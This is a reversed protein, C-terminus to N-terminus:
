LLGKWIYNEHFVQSDLIPPEKFIGYVAAGSGSMSSFVAGKDYLYQKLAGIEPFRNFVGEEFDNILYNKWEEAPLNELIEKFDLESPAPIILSFAEATSIHIKPFIIVIYNGSLDLQLDQFESGKGSAIVPKNKIFFPCDSGILAAYHELLIPDLFLNFHENLAKLTFSADSSGGGLGAGIPIAKHLHINVPPLNHDKALLKYAKLCLNEEQKGPIEIGSSSFQIKSSEIVELADQWQVPYFCTMLNHYGDKRKEKIKLGINIKANPFVLM